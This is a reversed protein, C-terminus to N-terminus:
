KFGLKDGWDERIEKRTSQPVDRFIMDPKQGESLEALLKAGRAQTETDGLEVFAAAATERFEYWKKTSLREDESHALIEEAEILIRRIEAKFDDAAVGTIEARKRNVSIRATSHYVFHNQLSVYSVWFNLRKNDPDQQLLKYDYRGREKGQFAMSRATDLKIIFDEFRENLTGASLFFEPDRKFEQYLPYYLQFWTFSLERFTSTQAHISSHRLEEEMEKEVFKVKEDVVQKLSKLAVRYASFGVVGGIVGILSFAYIFITFFNGSLSVNSEALNLLQRNIERQNRAINAVYEPEDELLHESLDREALQEEATGLRESLSSINPYFAVMMGGILVLSIVSCILVTVSILKLNEKIIKM